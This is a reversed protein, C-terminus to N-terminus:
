FHCEIAYIKFIQLFQSFHLKLDKPKVLLHVAPLFLFYHVKKLCRIQHELQTIPICVISTKEFYMTVMKQSQPLMNNGIVHVGFWIYLQLMCICDKLLEMGPDLVRHAHSIGISGWLATVEWTLGLSSRSSCSIKLSRFDTGTSSITAEIPPPPLIAHNKQEMMYTARNGCIHWKIKNSQQHCM